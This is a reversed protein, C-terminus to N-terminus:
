KGPPEDCAETLFKEMFVAASDWDCWILPWGFYATSGLSNGPGSNDVILSCYRYAEVETSDEGPAVYYEFEYIPQAGALDANIGNANFGEVAWLYGESTPTIFPWAEGLPLDPYGPSASTAGKFIEDGVTYLEQIGFATFSVPVQQGEACFTDDYRFPYNRAGRCDPDLFLAPSQGILIWNGGVQVYSDMFRTGQLFVQRLLNGTEDYDDEYWIVNRYRGVLSVPPAHRGQELCDFEVWDYGDLITDFFDLEVDDALHALWTGFSNSLGSFQSDDVVLMPYAEGVLPGAEVYYKFYCLSPTGLDDLAEVYLVHNGVSPVFTEGGPPYSDNGIYWATWDTTDEVAYRYGVINGGYSSADAEWTFAVDVGRFVESVNGQFDPGSPVKNNRRGLIGGNIEVRANQGPVPEFCCWNETPILVRELAGANDRGVVAFSPYRGTEPFTNKVDAFRVYTCDSGVRVWTEDVINEIGGVNLKYYFSDVVGGDPDFGSWEFLVNTGTQGCTGSECPGRTITTIPATSQATFTRHAPTPDHAGDDDVAKIWFTHIDTYLTDTHDCTICNDASVVFTSGTSPTQFWTVTDDWAFFYNVVEGDSDSGYWNMTVSFSGVSGHHPANSLVTEPLENPTETGLDEESCGCLLLLAAFLAWV